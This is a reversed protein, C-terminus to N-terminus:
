KTLNERYLKNLRRLEQRKADLFAGCDLSGPSGGKWRDAAPM